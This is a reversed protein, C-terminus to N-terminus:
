SIIELYESILLRYKGITHVNQLQLSSSKFANYDLKILKGNIVEPKLGGIAHYPMMKISDRLISRERLSLAHHYFGNQLTSVSSIHLPQLDGSFGVEM